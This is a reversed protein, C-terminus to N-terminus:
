LQVRAHEMSSSPRRATDRPAVTEDLHASPGTFASPVREPCAITMIGIASGTQTHLVDCFPGNPCDRSSETNGPM